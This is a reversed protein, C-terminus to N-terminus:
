KCKDCMEEFLGRKYFHPYYHVIIEKSHQSKTTEYARNCEPCVRVSFTTGTNEKRKKNEALDTNYTLGWDNIVKDHIPMDNRRKM